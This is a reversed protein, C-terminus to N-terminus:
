VSVTIKVYSNKCKLSTVRHLQLKSGTVSGHSGEEGM